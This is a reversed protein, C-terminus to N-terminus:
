LGCSVDLSLRKATSWSTRHPLQALPQLLSGASPRGGPVVHVDLLSGEEIGFDELPVDDRDLAVSHHHRLRQRDPHVDEALRQIRRKLEAVTDTSMVRLDTPRDQMPSWSLKVGLPVAVSQVRQLMLESGSVVGAEALTVEGPTTVDGSAGGVLSVRQGNLALAYSRSCPALLTLVKALLAAVTEWPDARVEVPQERLETRVALLLSGRQRLTLAADAPVAAVPCDDLLEGDGLHLGCLHFRALEWPDFETVNKVEKMKARVDGFTNSPEVFVEFTDPGDAVLLRVSGRERLHMTALCRVGLGSLTDDPRLPAGHYHLAYRDPCYQRSLSGMLQEWVARGSLSSGAELLVLRPRVAEPPLQVYFWLLPGAPEGGSCVLVNSVRGGLLEADDQRCM